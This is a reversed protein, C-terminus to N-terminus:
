TQRTQGPGLIGAHVFAVITWGVGADLLASGIWEVPYQFWAWQTVPGVLWAFAGIGLVFGVRGAFPEIRARQLAAAALTSVLFAVLLGRTLPRFMRNPAVGGPRYVLLAVPGERIRREWDERAEPGSGSAPPRGPIVYVGRDMGSGRLAEVVGAEDPLSRTVREHWPFFEWSVIGWAFLAMGGALGGILIKRFSRV